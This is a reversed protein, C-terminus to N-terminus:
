IGGDMSIYKEKAIGLWTPGTAGGNLLKCAEQINTIPLKGFLYAHKKNKCYSSSAAWNRSHGRVVTSYFLFFFSHWVYKYVQNFFSMNLSVLKNKFVFCKTQNWNCIYM